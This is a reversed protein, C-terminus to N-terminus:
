PQMPPDDTGARSKGIKQSQTRVPRSLSSSITVSRTAISSMAAAAAARSRPSIVPRAMRTNQDRPDLQYEGHVAPMSTARIGQGVVETTTSRYCEPEYAGPHWSRGAPPDNENKAGKGDMSGFGLSDFMFSLPPCASILARSSSPTSTMKPSGPPAM